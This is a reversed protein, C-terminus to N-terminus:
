PAVLADRRERVLLALFFPLGVLATVIGLKIEGTTPLLRVVIDALTLLAAGALASPVLVRDPAHGVFPRVLHPVVLGVFGIVGAVAVSAGIGLSIGAIILNRTRGISVGLTRATDEGLTLAALAPRAALILALAAVMFPVAIAVHVVSREALSGLLWFAIELAAYPNPALDLSLATVSAFFSSLALGALVLTLIRADRGAFVHLLVAGALAGLIAAPPLLPSLTGALGLSISLTAAAAAANATGLLDPAALPNRFFGQMAAGSMGLTAGIMVALATRPLRLELVITSIVPDAKGTFAAVLDAPGIPAPGTLLSAIAGIAVLLCLLANFM